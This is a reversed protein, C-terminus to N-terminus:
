PPEFLTGDPGRLWSGLGKPTDTLRLEWSNAMGYKLLSNSRTMLRCGVKVVHFSIARTSRRPFRVEGLLHFSPGVTLEGFEHHSGLRHRFFVARLSRNAHGSLCAEVHDIQAFLGKLGHEEVHSCHERELSSSALAIGSVGSGLTLASRGLDDGSM